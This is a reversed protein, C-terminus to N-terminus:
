LKRSEHSSPLNSGNRSELPSTSRFRQKAFFRIQQDAMPSVATAVLREHLDCANERYPRQEFFLGLSRLVTEEASESPLHPPKGRGINRNM